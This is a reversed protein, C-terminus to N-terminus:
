AANRRSEARGREILAKLDEVILVIAPDNHPALAPRRGANKLTADTLRLAHAHMACALEQTRASM